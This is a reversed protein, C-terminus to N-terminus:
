TRAATELTEGINKGTFRGLRKGLKEFDITEIPPYLGLYEQGNFSGGAAEVIPLIGVHNPRLGDFYGLEWPMWKSGSSAKSSAYLLFRCHSMRQRLMDATQATVRSRDAQPDEIWDVYVQLGEQEILGKVGIILQSDEHSHSLFVDYNKTMPAAASKRMESEAAAKTTWSGRAAAALAQARTVYAM